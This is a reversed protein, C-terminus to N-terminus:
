DTYGRTAKHCERYLALWYKRDKPEVGEYNGIFKMLQFAVAEHSSQEIEIPGSIKTSTDAM